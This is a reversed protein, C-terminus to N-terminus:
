PYLLAIWPFSYHGGRCKPTTAISFPAEPNGEVITVLKVKCLIVMLRLIFFDIICNGQYEKM